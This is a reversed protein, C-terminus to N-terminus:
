VKEQLDKIFGLDMKSIIVLYNDYLETYFITFM